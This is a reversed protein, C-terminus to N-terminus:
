NVLKIRGTQIYDLVRNIQRRDEENIQRDALMASTLQLHQQRSMEGAALIQEVVTSIAVRASDQVSRIM